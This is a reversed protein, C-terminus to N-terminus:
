ISEQQLPLSHKLRYEIVDNIAVLKISHQKSFVRLEPLRAMSGDDNMIECLVTAPQLGALRALDISGETHGLRELVGGERALLPFIHGPYSIDAPTSSPNVAVQITHSRDFASIGSTVGQAAEISVTFHAQNPLRNREPMLPLDLRQVIEHGLPLCIQGRAHKAMFNIADPTVKEAAIVLDGENERLEDDVLILMRGERLENLADEISIFKGM